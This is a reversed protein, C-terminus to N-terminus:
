NASTIRINLAIVEEDMPILDKNYVRQIIREVKIEKAPKKIADANSPQENMFYVADVGYKEKIKQIYNSAKEIKEESIKQAEKERRFSYNIKQPKGRYNNALIYANKEAQRKEENLKAKAIAGSIDAKIGFSYFNTKEYNKTYNKLFRYSLGGFSFTDDTCYGFHQIEIGNGEGKPKIDVSGGGVGKKYLSIEITKIQGNPYSSYDKIDYKIGAAELEPRVSEFEELTTNRDFIVLINKQDQIPFFIGIPNNEKKGFLLLLPIIALSFLTYSRWTRKPNLTCQMMQIRKKIFSFNYSNTLLPMTRPFQAKILNLQYHKADIGANLLVEDVLFEQNQEILRRYQWVMPNFWCVIKLLNALLLDLSHWQRIHVLEHQIIQQRLADSQTEKPLILFKFFSFPMTVVQPTVMTYDEFKQKPAKKIFCFLQYNQQFFRAAFFVFGI